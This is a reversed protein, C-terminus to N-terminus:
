SLPAANGNNKKREASEGGQAWWRATVVLILCLVANIVAARWLGGKIYPMADFKTDDAADQLARMWSTGTVVAFGTLALAVGALVWAVRRAPRKGNKPMTPNPDDTPVMAAFKAPEKANRM